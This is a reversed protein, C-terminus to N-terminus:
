RFPPNGRQFNPGDYVGDFWHYNVGDGLRQVDRATPAPVEAWIVERVRELLSTADQTTFVAAAVVDDREDDGPEDLWARLPAYIRRARAVAPDADDGDLMVAALDPPTAVASGDTALLRSTVVLAHIAGE